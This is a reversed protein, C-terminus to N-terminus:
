TQDRGRHDGCNVTERRRVDHGDVGFVVVLGKKHGNAVSVSMRGEIIQRGDMVPDVHASERAIRTGTGIQREKATNVWVLADYGCDFGRFLCPDRKSYGSDNLVLRVELLLDHRTKVSFVHLEDSRDLCLIAGGEEATGSSEKM